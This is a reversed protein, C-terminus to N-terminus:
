VRQAALKRNRRTRKRYLFYGGILVALVVAGIAIIMPELVSQNYPTNVLSNPKLYIISKQYDVIVNFRKLVDNGLINFALSGEKAELELDLPIDHLPIGAIMFTPLLFSHSKISVGNVGKARRTGLKKMGEYLNNNSAFAHNASIAWKSGTDFLFLGKCRKGNLVVEAEIFSNAERWVIPTARYGNGPAFSQHHIVMIGKDYDIEVLKDEFANYGIVGDARLSGNYDIYTVPVKQWSLGAVEMRNNPQLKVGKGAGGDSLVEVSAGTDFILDLSDSGNITGKIHIANNAGLTFPITDTGQGKKHASRSYEIKYPNVASLQQYCSDKGNLLIVFDYTDGPEVDFAISDVDTYYVVRKAAASKHYPYVDPKLGPVLEGHRLDDGDLIKIQKSTARIVPLDNQAWAGGALLFLCLFLSLPRSM